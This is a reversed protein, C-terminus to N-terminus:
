AIAFDDVAAGHTCVHLQSSSSGQHKLPRLLRHYVYPEKNTDQAFTYEAQCQQKTHNTLNNRTVNAILMDQTEGSGDKIWPVLTGVCQIVYDLMDAFSHDRITKQDLKMRGLGQRIYVWASKRLSKIEALQRPSNSKAEVILEEKRKPDQITFTHTKRDIASVYSGDSVPFVNNWEDSTIDFIDKETSQSSSSSSSSSASSAPVTEKEISAEKKESAKKKGKESKAKKKEEEKEQAEILQKSVERARTEELERIIPFLEYINLFTDDYKTKSEDILELGRKIDQKEGGIGLIYAYGRALYLSRVTKVTSEKIFALLKKSKEEDKEVCYGYHYAIVLQLLEMNLMDNPVQEYARALMLIGEESGENTLITSYIFRAVRIGQRALEGLIEKAKERNGAIKHTWILRQIQTEGYPSHAKEYFEYAKKINPIGRNALGLEYIVGANLCSSVYYLPTEQTSYQIAKLYNQLAQAPDLPILSIEGSLYANGLKFLGGSYNNSAAKQYYELGLKVDKPGGLGGVLLDGLEVYSANLQIKDDRTLNTQDIKEIALQLYQRAEKYKHLPVCTTAATQYQGPFGHTAADLAYHITKHPDNELTGLKVLQMYAAPIYARFALLKTEIEKLQAKSLPQNSWLLNEAVQYERLAEAQPMAPPTSAYQTLSLSAAFALILLSLLNKM